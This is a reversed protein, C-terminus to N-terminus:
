KLNGILRNLILKLTNGVKANPFKELIPIGEAYSIQIERDMPIEGLIHAQYEESFENFPQKKIAIDSRNIIIYSLPKTPIYKILELIRKLDYFGFPTPETVSVIIKSGLLAAIIDCHAGPATDIIILDYKNQSCWADAYKRVAHVVAATKPEGIELEGVILDIGYKAGKLIKGIIKKDTQIAEYKCVLKCAECGTCIEPFLLPKKEPINLIAHALCVQQCEGCGICHENFHPLFSEVSTVEKLEAGL